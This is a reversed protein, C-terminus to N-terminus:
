TLPKEMWLVDWYRDFKRGVAHMVGARVFGFREHLAVSADNPLTIGAIAVHLDQGAVADFLAAYLATGVGHGAAQPDCYITTEVTTDYAAKTRFQHSGAYGIVIGAHEAVFLRHWGAPAFQDFWPRRADVSYPELDFTIPTNVIYHNYIETIRPLDDITAPRTTSSLVRKPLAPAQPQDRPPADPVLESIQAVHDRDHAAINELVSLPSYEEHGIKVLRYLTDDGIGEVVTRVADRTLSLMTSAMRGDAPEEIWAAPTERQCQHALLKAYVYESEIVHQLIRRVTWGGARSREFASADLVDIRAVLSRRAAAMDELARTLDSNLIGAM